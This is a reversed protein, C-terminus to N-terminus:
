VGSAQKNLCRTPLLWDRATIARSLALGVFKPPLRNSRACRHVVIEEPALASPMSRTNATSGLAHERHSVAPSEKKGAQEPFFCPKTITAMAYGVLKELTTGNRPSFAPNCKDM